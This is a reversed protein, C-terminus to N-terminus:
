DGLADAVSTTLVSTTSVLDHIQQVGLISLAHNLTDIKASFGFYVNNVIRLL